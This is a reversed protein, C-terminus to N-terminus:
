PGSRARHVCRFGIATSRDGALRFERSAGRLFLPSDLYSGGRVPRWAGAPAGLPNVESAPAYRVSSTDDVADSVWEAVNGALDDIGDPTRGEPLSGVPALETFGDIDDAQRQGGIAKGHNSLHANYLDGWPYRSGAAGRAAREWEAETPLRGGVFACYTGADYFSVLVVPLEPRYLRAGGNVYPPPTCRGVEVCREYAAVTVETRDIRYASLTVDHAELEAGFHRECSEAEDMWLTCTDIAAEVEKATSGMTFTGAAIFVSDPGDARLTVVGGSHAVVVLVAFLPISRV